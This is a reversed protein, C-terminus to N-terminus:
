PTTRLCLAAITYLLLTPENSRYGCRWAPPNDIFGSQVLIVNKLPAPDNVTCSGSIPRTGAPCLINVFGLGNPQVVNHVSTWVLRDALPPEAAPCDCAPAADAIKSADIAADTGLHWNDGCSIVFALGAVVGSLLFAISKPLHM